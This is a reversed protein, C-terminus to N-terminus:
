LLFTIVHYLNLSLMAVINRVSTALFASSTRFSAEQDFVAFSHGQLQGSVDLLPLRGDRNWIKLKFAARQNTGWMEGGTVYSGRSIGILIENTRNIKRERIDGLTIEVDTKAKMELQCVVRAQRFGKDLDRLSNGTLRSDTFNDVLHRKSNRKWYILIICFDILRRKSFCLAVIFAKIVGGEIM